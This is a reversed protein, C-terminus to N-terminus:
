NANNRKAGVCWRAACMWAFSHVLRPYTCVEKRAGIKKEEQSLGRVQEPLHEDPLSSFAMRFRVMEDLDVNGDANVDIEKVLEEVLEREDTSLEVWTGDPLKFKDAGGM